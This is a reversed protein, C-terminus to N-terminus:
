TQLFNTCLPRPFISSFLHGVLRRKMNGDKREERQPFLTGGSDKGAGAGVVCFM